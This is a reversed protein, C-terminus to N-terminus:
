LGKAKNKNQLVSNRQVAEAIRSSVRYVMSTEFESMRRGKGGMGPWVARRPNFPLQLCVRLLFTVPDVRGLIGRSM